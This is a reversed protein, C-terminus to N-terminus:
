LISGPVDSWAVLEMQSGLTVRDLQCSSLSVVEEVTAYDMNSGYEFVMMLATSKAVFCLWVAVALM